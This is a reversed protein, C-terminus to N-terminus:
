GTTRQPSAGIEDLLAGVRAVIADRAAAYGDSVMPLEDWRTVDRRASLGSVDCGLAVVRDAASMLETTALAPVSNAPVAIGDAQLGAVVHSPLESDPEVGASASRISIGRLAALRKLHYAAIVSKASGHLCVFLVTPTPM